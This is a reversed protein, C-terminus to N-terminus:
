KIIKFLYTVFCVPIPISLYISITCLAAIVLSCLAWSTPLLGSICRLSCSHPCHIRWAAQVDQVMLVILVWLAQLSVWFSSLMRCCPMLLTSFISLPLVLCWYRLVTIVWVVEYLFCLLVFFASYVHVPNIISHDLSEWKLTIRLKFPMFHINFHTM